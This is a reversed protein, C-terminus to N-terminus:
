FCFYGSRGGRRLLLLERGSWATWSHPFEFVMCAAGQELVGQPQDVLSEQPLTYELLLRPPGHLVGLNNKFEHQNTYFKQFSLTILPSGFFGPGKANSRKRHM